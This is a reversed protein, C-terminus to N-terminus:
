GKQYTAATKCLICIEYIFLYFVIAYNIIILVFTLNISDCKIFLVFDLILLISTLVLNIINMVRQLTTETRDKNIIIKAFSLCKTVFFIFFTILVINNSATIASNTTSAANNASQQFFTWVAISISVLSFCSVIFDLIATSITKESM